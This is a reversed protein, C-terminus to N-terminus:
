GRISAEQGDEKDKGAALAQKLEQETYYRRNSAKRRAKLIGERDWRQLTKVSVRVLKAFEAIDYIKEEMCV